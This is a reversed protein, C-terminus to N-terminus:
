DRKYIFPNTIDVSFIELCIPKFNLIGNLKFLIEFKRLLFPVQCFNDLQRSLEPFQHFPPSSSYHYNMRSKLAFTSELFLRENSTFPTSLDRWFILQEQEMDVCDM